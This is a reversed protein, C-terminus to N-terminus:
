NEMLAKMDELTNELKELLSGYVVQTTLRYSLIGIASLVLALGVVILIEMGLHLTNFKELIKTDQFFMWYAPLIVLPLGLGILWTSNKVMNKVRSRYNLLYTYTNDKIDLLELDKLMKRNIFFLALILIGAYAGLLIKGMFALIGFLILAIPILSLNDWKTKKNIQQVVLKSKKKYLNSIVPASLKAEAEFGEKWINEISKEM